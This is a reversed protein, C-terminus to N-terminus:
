TYKKLLTGSKTLKAQYENVEAVMEPTWGRRVIEGVHFSKVLTNGTFEIEMVPVWEGDRKVSVGSPRPGDIATVTMRGGNGWYIRDGIQVTEVAQKRLETAFNAAAAGRKTYCVKEGRCKFCRTGTMRNYSFHGSGGCRTCTETEYAPMDM